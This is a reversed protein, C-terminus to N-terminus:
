VAARLPSAPERALVRALAEVCRRDFASGAQEFLLGMAKEATWAARYVRTSILADYVDCVALIRTDLDLQAAKLGEPYGSGDLREHHDHVLRLVGDAFGGLERLLRRGHEPHGQIVVYEDADLPGPKKLVEDPVALKGIDHLLGGVALTRLRGPALGLEEGVQVARLAVRRTHEETYADKEALRATLARIHSGLFAEEEEVLESGRLDGALPRSQVGRYLDLAVAGGVLGIGTLELGHGVWWGLQTYDLVLAAVLAGALWGLGIVVVLDAARRTLLFTRLARFGLLGYFSLGIALVTLAAASAPSPVPPVLSPFVMGPVGLVAIGVLLAAQLILLPRVGRPGRLAPLVSLALVAGGVPLTAGGSFAVVGNYGILIGPTAFGHLALLAAMASFAAGVLVARSDRRQVGIWTLLIAAATAILATQGVAVFHVWGPIQVQSPGLLHAAPLPVAALAAAAALAPVFRNKVSAFISGRQYSKLSTDSRTSGAAASGLQRNDGCLEEDFCEGGFGV